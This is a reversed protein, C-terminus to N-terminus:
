KKKKGNVVMHTPMAAGGTLAALLAVWLTPDRWDLEKVREETAKGKAITEALKTKGAETHAEVAITTADLNDMAANFDNIKNNAVEMMSAAGTATGAAFQEAGTCGSCLWTALGFLVALCVVIIMLLGKNFEKNM